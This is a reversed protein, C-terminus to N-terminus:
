KMFDEITNKLYNIHNLYFKIEKDSSSLILKILEEKDKNETLYNNVGFEKLDIELVDVIKFFTSLSPLYNGSELKSIHQDNLGILEALQAQTYGKKKRHKKVIKAIHAKDKYFM